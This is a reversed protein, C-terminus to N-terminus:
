DRRITKGKRNRGRVKEDANKLEEAAELVSDDSGTDCQICLNRDGWETNEESLLSLADSGRERSRCALIVHNQPSTLLCRRALALGIGKNSGTILICPPM